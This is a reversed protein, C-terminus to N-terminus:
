IGSYNLSNNKRSGVDGQLLRNMPKSLEMDKDIEELVKIQAKTLNFPLKNILESMKVEKSFKIGENQTNAQKLNLLVLQMGLLEEFVLRTRARKYEKFDDPFHIQKIATNLDLLHYEELLYTPLTEELKGEVISLGNEITKRITGQPLSYTSPYIPIIKGTNQSTEEKDFVPNLIEVKGYKVSVKGFFNYKEGVEFKGKLYKQNFWSIICSGTEDRAILKEIIMNKRVKIETVKSIVVAEILAEEGDILQMIKKPNSRDEYERPFYTILDELTYINLKQLLTARQPGVGKIYQISQNLDIM